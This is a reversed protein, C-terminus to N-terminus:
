KTATGFLQKDPDSSEFFWPLPTATSSARWSISASSQWSEHLHGWAEWGPQGWLQCCSAPCWCQRLCACPSVATHLLSKWGRILRHTCPATTRPQRYQKGDNCNLYKTKLDQLKPLNLAKRLVRKNIGQMRCVVILGNSSKRLRWSKWWRVLWQAYFYNLSFNKIDWLHLMGISKEQSGEDWGKGSWDM